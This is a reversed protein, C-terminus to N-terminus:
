PKYKKKNKISTPIVTIIAHDSTYLLSSKIASLFEKKILAHDLQQSYWTTYTGINGLASFKFPNIDCRSLDDSIVIVLNRTM